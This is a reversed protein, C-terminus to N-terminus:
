QAWAASAFAWLLAAVFARWPVARSPRSKHNKTSITTALERKVLLVVAVPVQDYNLSGTFAIQRRCVQTSKGPQLALRQGEMAGRVRISRAVQGKPAAQEAQPLPGSGVDPADLPSLLTVASVSDRRAVASSM